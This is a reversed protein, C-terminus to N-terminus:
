ADWTSCVVSSSLMISVIISRVVDMCVSYLVVTQKVLLMHQFSEKEREDVTGGEDMELSIFPPAVLVSSGSISPQSRKCLELGVLWWGCHFM